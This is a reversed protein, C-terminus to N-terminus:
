FLLPANAAAAAAAAAVAVVVAVAVAIGMGLRRFWLLVATQLFLLRCTVICGSEFFSKENTALIATRSSAAFETDVVRAQVVPVVDGEVIPFIPVVAVVVVLLVLFFLLQRGLFLFLDLLV